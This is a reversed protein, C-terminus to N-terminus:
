FHFFFCVCVTSEGLLLVNHGQKLVKALHVRNREGGSMTGVLKDQSAGRLNFAATYARVNVQRDGIQQITDGGESIEEIASKDPDLGSRGQSVLGVKALRGWEVTGGDAEEVGAILNFLTTKGSGNPGVVGVVSGPDVTFNVGSFLTRDGYTKSLDKVTLGSRGLRPGPPIVIKGESLQQLKASGEKREAVAKEYNKARAKSVSARGTRIWELESELRKAVQAQKSHERDLRNQKQLLWASYNGKYPLLSGRDVELIWGAVNDLFYRDHTISIVTGKFARLYDELWRVSEADLHNTPEDLLVVDPQELLLRCLAVRRKEGGSLQDVPSDGPPVRLKRMAIDVRHQLNWADADEIKAQLAAQEELLADLDADPDGMAIGTEEFRAVMNEQEAIGRRINEMVNLSSDLDPEQPLYKVRLGDRTWMDGDFEKDEGAIIKLVTSKGSGNVGLVGIKAGRMFTLSADAFLQRGGPLQKSVGDMTIVTETTETSSGGSQAAAAAAPPPPPPPPAASAAGRKNRGKNTRSSLSRIAGCGDAAGSIGSHMSSSTNDYARPCQERPLGSYFHAQGLRRRHPQPQQRQQQRQQQQRSSHQACCAAATALDNINT